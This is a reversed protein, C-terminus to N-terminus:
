ELARFSRFAPRRRDPVWKGPLGDVLPMGDDSLIQVERLSTQTSHIAVAGSAPSACPLLPLKQPV